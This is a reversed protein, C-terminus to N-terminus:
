ARRGAPTHREMWDWVDEEISWLWDIQQQTLRIVDDGAIVEGIERVCSYTGSEGDIWVLVPTGAGPDDPFIEDANFDVRLGHKYLSFQPKMSYPVVTAYVAKRTLM